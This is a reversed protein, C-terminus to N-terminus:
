HSRPAWPPIIPNRAGAPLCLGRSLQRSAQCALQSAPQRATQCAIFAELTSKFHGTQCVDLNGSKLPCVFLWGSM